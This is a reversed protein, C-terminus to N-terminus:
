RSSHPTSQHTNTDNFDSGRELPKGAIVLAELLKIELEHLEVLVASSLQNDNVSM